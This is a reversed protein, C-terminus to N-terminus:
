KIFMIQIAQEINAVERIEITNNLYEQLTYPQGRFRSQGTPVLFLKYGSDRAAIAKERIEGVRRINGEPSIAGTLVISENVVCKRNQIKFINSFEFNM